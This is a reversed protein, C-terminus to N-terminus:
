KSEEILKMLKDLLFRVSITEDYDRKWINVWKSEKAITITVAKHLLFKFFVNNSTEISKRTKFFDLDIDLVFNNIWSDRPMCLDFKRFHNKLNEDSIGLDYEDELRSNVIIPEDDYDVDGNICYIRNPKSNYSDDCFVLAKKFFGAKIAADIHEDHKLKLITDIDNAKIKEILQFKEEDYKDQRANYYLFNQFCNHLDTHHDFTLLYPEIDKYKYWHILVHHHEECVFIEKKNIVLNQIDM